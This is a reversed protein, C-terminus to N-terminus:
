FFICSVLKQNIATYPGFVKELLHHKNLFNKSFYEILLKAAIVDLNFLYGTFQKEFQILNMEDNNNNNNNNDNNTPNFTPSLQFLSKFFRISGILCTTKNIKILNENNQNIEIQNNYLHKNALQWLQLHRLLIYAMTFSIIICLLKEININNNNYTNNNITNINILSQFMSHHIKYEISNFKNNQYNYFENIWKTTSWQICEIFYNILASDWLSIKLKLQNFDNNIISNMLDNQQNILDIKIFSDFPLNPRKLLLNSEKLYNQIELKLQKDNNLHNFFKEAIDLSLILFLQDTTTSHNNLEIENPSKKHKLKPTKM